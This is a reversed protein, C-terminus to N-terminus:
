QANAASEVSAIFEDSLLQSYTNIDMVVNGNSKSAFTPHSFMGLKWDGTYEGKEVIVIRDVKHYQFANTINNGNADQMYFDYYKQYIEGTTPDKMELMIYNNDGLNMDYATGIVMQNNVYKNQFVLLKTAM